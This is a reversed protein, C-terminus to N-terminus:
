EEGEIEEDDDLTELEKKIVSLLTELDYKKDKLPKYVPKITELGKKKDLSFPYWSPCWGTIAYWAGMRPFLFLRFRRM